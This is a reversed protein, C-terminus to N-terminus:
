AGLRRGDSWKFMTCRPVRAIWGSVSSYEHAEVKQEQPGEQGKRCEGRGSEQTLSGTKFAPASFSGFVRTKVGGGSRKAVRELRKLRKSLGIDLVDEFFLQILGYLFVIVGVRDVRRAL